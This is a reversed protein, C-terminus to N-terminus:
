NALALQFVKNGNGLTYINIFGAKQKSAVLKNIMDILKSYDILGTWSIELPPKFMNLVLTYKNGKQSISVGKSSKATLGVPNSMGMSSMLGVLMNSVSEANCDVRGITNNQQENRTAFLESIM